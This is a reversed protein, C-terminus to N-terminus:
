PLARKQWLTVNGRGGRSEGCQEFMQPHRSITKRVTEASLDLEKALDAYSMPRTLAGWVVYEQGRTANLEPSLRLDAPTIRVPGSAGDFFINLGFDAPKQGDNVKRCYLGLEIKDSEQEQVRQVYWTRRAGNAWFISNGQIACRGNRRTIYAGSPLTFCYVKGDYPVSSIHRGKRLSITNRRAPSSLVTYRHLHGPKAPPQRRVTGSRGMEIALRQVDDALRESVTCYTWRGNPLRSGDGDVLADMLITKQRVSLGWAWAPLHKGPAGKGCHEVMWRTLEPRGRTRIYCMPKELPRPAWQKTQTWYDIGLRDLCGKMEDALRGASQALALASDQTSGESIWWGVFRLLDDAALGNITDVDPNDVAPPATYPVKMPSGNLERVELYQWGDAYRRRPTGRPAKFAPQVLLRHNPTVLADMGPSHISLMEGTYDYAHFHEPIEWRFTGTKADFAYVEDGPTWEAHYRWGDRGLYQTDESHCGFPRRVQAPDREGDGTVHAILLVPLGIRDAARYFRLAAEAKEPEVGCALAAHDVVLAGINRQAVCRRIADVQDTLPIGSGPWYYIGSVDTDPIDLGALLRRLRFGFVDPGTEFDVFLVNRQETTRGVFPAGRVIAVSMSLALFTKAASGAGFLITTGSTPALGDVLFDIQAPAPIEIARRARDMGLFAAQALAIAKSLVRAWGPDKGLIADLERRCAERASLSLLNLRLVYPESPTGPLLLRLHMEADLDRSTKELDLFRAEVPGSASNLTVVLSDPSLVQVSTGDDAQHLTPQYRGYASAVKERAAPDPFPPTCRSAADCVLQEAIDIPVDAYRLKSALRFLAVDRQGESVGDLTARTNFRERAADHATSAAAHVARPVAELWAPAQVFDGFPVVWQYAAGSAHRSPPAVIYSGPGRLDVHELYGVKPPIRNVTRYIYHWGRGTKSTATRPMDHGAAKIAAVGSPGDIDVAAFDSQLPLGINADPWERWWRRIVLEAASADKLGHATRPHKGPSTCEPNQCSCQGGAACHLPIVPWGKAAYNLAAQLLEDSATMTTQAVM